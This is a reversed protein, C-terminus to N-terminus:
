LYVTNIYLNPEIDANITERTLYQSPYINTERIM